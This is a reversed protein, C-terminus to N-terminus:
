FARRTFEGPDALRLGQITSLANMVGSVVARGGHLSIEATDEGTFSRPAAFFTVLAHDLLARHDSSGSISPDYLKVLTTVRPSLDPVNLASLAARTDSGSLRVVALAAVGPPTSLAYITKKPPPNPAM